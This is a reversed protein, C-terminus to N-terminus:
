PLFECCLVKTSLRFILVKIRFHFIIAREISVAIIEVGKCVTANYFHHDVNGETTKTEYDQSCQNRTTQNLQELVLVEMHYYKVQIVSPPIHGLMFWPDYSEMKRGSATAQRHICYVKQWRPKNCPMPLRRHRSTSMADHTITKWMYETKGDWPGKEGWQFTAERKSPTHGM